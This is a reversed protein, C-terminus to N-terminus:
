DDKNEKDLKAAAKEAAVERRAKRIVICKARLYAQAEDYNSHPCNEWDCSVLYSKGVKQRLVKLELNEDEAIQRLDAVRQNAGAAAHCSEYNWKM